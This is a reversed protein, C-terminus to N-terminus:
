CAHPDGVNLDAENLDAENESETMPGGANMLGAEYLPRLLELADSLLRAILDARSLALRRALTDLAALTAPPLASSVPVRAVSLSRLRDARLVSREPM